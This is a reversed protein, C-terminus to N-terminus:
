ILIVSLKLIEFGLIAECQHENRVIKGNDFVNGVSDGDHVEAFEAFNCFGVREVVHGSMGVGFEKQTRTGRRIRIRREIDAHDFLAVDWRRDIRWRPAAEMGSANIRGFTAGILLGLHTWDRIVM